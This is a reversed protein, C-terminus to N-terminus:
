GDSDPAALERLFERYGKDLEAASRGIRQFLDDERARGSYLAKLHAVLPERLAGQEGQILYTALGAMQSYLQPLDQRRQLDPKGLSALEALPVYYGDVLLRHRAAPLRAADASGITYSGPQDTPALSEFYCAVGEVLWFGHDRGVDLRAKLSEQFLQHVAEHYLTARQSSDLTLQVEDSVGQPSPENRGDAQTGQSPLDSAYFHAERLDDFYIGLTDAIRPQKHCLATVYQDRTRHFVVHFPRRPARAVRDGLFRDEIEADGLYCGAFLQRWVQFLRELEAALGAGAELSHNTTVLFHDTRVQWGQDISAHQQSDDALSVWRRGARRQGAEYHALDEKRVWGYRPSFLFGRDLQKAQFATVWAGDRQQYGLVRRATENDPDALLVDTALRLARSPEGRRAASIAQELLAGTTVHDATPVLVGPSYLDPVVHILEGASAASGTVAGGALLCLLAWRNLPRTRPSDPQATQRPM